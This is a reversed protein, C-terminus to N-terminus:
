TLTQKCIAVVSIQFCNYEYVRIFGSAKFKLLLEVIRSFFLFSSFSFLLLFLIPLPYSVIHEKFDNSGGYEPCRDGIRLLLTGWRSNMTNRQVVAMLHAALLTKWRFSQSKLLWFRSYWISSIFKFPTQEPGWTNPSKFDPNLQVQLDM